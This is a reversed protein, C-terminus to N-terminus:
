RAESGTLAGFGDDGEAGRLGRRPQRPEKRDGPPLGRRLQRPREARLELLKSQQEATLIKKMQVAADVRARLAAGHLDTLEKVRAALAKEDVTQAKLLQQLELRAIQTDANRKIALRRQENQMKEIQAVQQDSLGLEQKLRAPNGLGGGRPGRGPRGEPGVGPGAQAYALGTAGAVAIVGLLGLVQRKM